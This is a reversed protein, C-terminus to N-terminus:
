RLNTIIKLLLLQILLNQHKLLLGPQLMIKDNYKNRVIKNFLFDLELVIGVYDKLFSFAPYGIISAQLMQKDLYGSFVSYVEPVTFNASLFPTYAPDIEKNNGTNFGYDYAKIGISGSTQYFTEKNNLFQIKLNADQYDYTENIFKGRTTLEMRGLRLGIAIDQILIPDIQTKVKFKFNKNM